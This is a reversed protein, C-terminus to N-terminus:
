QSWNQAMYYWDTKSTLCVSIHKNKPYKDNDLISIIM